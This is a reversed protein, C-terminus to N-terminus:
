FAKVQSTHMSDPKAVGEWKVTVTGDGHLYPLFDIVKGVLSKKTSGQMELGWDSLKVVCGIHTVDKSKKCEIQSSYKECILLAERFQEQTIM